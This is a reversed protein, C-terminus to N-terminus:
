FEYNIQGIANPDEDYKLKYIFYFIFNFKNVSNLNTSDPKYGLYIGGNEPTVTETTPELNPDELAVVEVNKPESNNTTTTSISTGANKDEGNNNSAHAAISLFLLCGVTM